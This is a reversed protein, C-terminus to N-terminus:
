CRISLQTRRISRSKLIKSDQYSSSLCVLKTTWLLAQIRLKQFFITRSRWSHALHSPMIAMLIALQALKTQPLKQIALLHHRVAQHKSVRFRKVVQIIRLERANNKPRSIRNMPKSNPNTTMFRSALLSAQTLKEHAKVQMAISPLRVPIQFWFNPLIQWKMLM